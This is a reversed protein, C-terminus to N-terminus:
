ALDAPPARIKIGREAIRAALDTAAPAVRDNELAIPATEISILALDLSAAPQSPLLRIQIKARVVIREALGQGAKTAEASGRISAAGAPIAAAIAVGLLVLFASIVWQPPAREDQAQKTFTTTVRFDKAQSRQLGECKASLYIPETKRAGNEAIEMFRAPAAM